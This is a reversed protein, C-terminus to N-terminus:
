VAAISDSPRIFSPSHQYNISASCHTLILGVKGVNSILLFPVQVIEDKCSRYKVIALLHGYHSAVGCFLAVINVHTLICVLSRQRVANVEGM